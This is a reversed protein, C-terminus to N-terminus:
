PQPFGRPSSAELSRHPNRDGSRRDRDRDARPGGHVCVAPDLVASDRWRSGRRHGVETAHGFPRRLASRCPLRSRVTLSSWLRSRLALGSPAFSRHAARRFSGYRSRSISSVNTAASCARDSNRAACLQERSGSLTGPRPPVYHRRIWSRAGSSFPSRRSRIPARISSKASAPSIEGPRASTWCATRRSALGIRTFTNCGSGSEPCFATSMMSRARKPPPSCNVAAM